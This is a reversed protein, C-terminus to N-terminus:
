VEESQRREREIRKDFWAGFSFIIVGVAALLVIWYTSIFVGYSNLQM